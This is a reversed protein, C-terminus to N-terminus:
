LASFWAQLHFVVPQSRLEIVCLLACTLLGVLLAALLLLRVGRVARGAPEDWAGLGRSLPLAAALALIWSCDLLYRTDLGGIYATFVLLLAALALMSALLPLARATKLPRRVRRCTLMALGLPLVPALAFLGGIGPEAYQWVPLAGPFRQVYPFADSGVPPQLLYYGVLCPLNRLPPRYHNLDVVTLQYTNGFDLASGFRWSNYAWLPAAVLAVPGLAAALVAASRAPSLAPASPPRPGSAARLPTRAAARRWGVWIAKIEEAFIPFALLGSAIFTQRCGLTAAIALSGGALRPLSLYVQPNSLAPLSGDVDEALWPRSRGDELRIRRAGLWLWLGLTALLLSADFPITYFNARCFLYAAQSGTSLTLLAFLCAGLSARPVYRRLLRVLLLCGTVTFGAVLLAAAAPTPLMLGGPTFVSTLARYPLFLLLAPLPGFYSYWHGNHFAYDWYIPSEGSALLHERVAISYPNPAKALGDPVPLDLWPHGALFADALHGYQNFDYTYAGPSDFAGPVFGSIQDAAKWLAWAWMPLMALWFALRQGLSATDLRVRWLRSGPLLAIILTALLAMVGLRVPNIRFPIRPNLTLADLRVVSRAEESIWLRVRDPSRLGSRNRLYTSAPITPSVLSTGAPTWARSGVGRLELRVHVRRVRHRAEDPIQRGTTDLSLKSQGAQVYALPRGDAKAEVWAQTPDRVLLSGDDLRELGPGLRSSSQQNAPAGSSALSRWHPLNFLCCELLLILCLAIWISRHRAASSLRRTLRPIATLM